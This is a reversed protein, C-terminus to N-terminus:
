RASGFFLWIWSHKCPVRLKLQPHFTVIGVSSCVLVTGFSHCCSKWVNLNASKARNKRFDRLGNPKYRNPNVIERTM